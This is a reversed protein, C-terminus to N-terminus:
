LILLRRKVRTRSTDPLAKRVDRRLADWEDDGLEPLDADRRMKPDYRVFLDDMRRVLKLLDERDVETMVEHGEDDRDLQGVVEVRQVLPHVCVQGAPQTRVDTQAHGRKTSETTDSM